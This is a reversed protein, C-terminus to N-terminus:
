IQIMSNEYGFWFPQRVSLDLLYFYLIIFRICYIINFDFLGNNVLNSFFIIKIKAIYNKSIDIYIHIAYSM